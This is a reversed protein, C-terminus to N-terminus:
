SRTLHVNPYLNSYKAMFEEDPLRKRNCKNFIAAFLPFFAAYFGLIAMGSIFEDKNIESSGKVYLEMQVAGTMIMKMYSLYLSRIIGNWFFNKIIGKLKKKIKDRCKAVCVMICCMGLCAIVGLGAFIIYM